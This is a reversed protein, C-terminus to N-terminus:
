TLIGRSRKVTALNMCKADRMRKNTFYTRIQRPQLGTLEALKSVENSGAYPNNSHTQLYRNLITRQKETFNQRQKTSKNKMQYPKTSAVIQSAIEHPLPQFQFNKDPNEEPNQPHIMIEPIKLHNDSDFNELNTLNETNENNESTENNKQPEQTQTKETPEIDNTKISNKSNEKKINVTQDAEISSHSSIEVNEQGTLNCNTNQNNQMHFNRNQFFNFQLQINPFNPHRLFNRNDPVFVNNIKPQPFKTPNDNNVPLFCPHYNAIAYKDPIINSLNVFTTDDKINSFVSKFYRNRKIPARQNDKSDSKFDTISVNKNAKLGDLVSAFTGHRSENIQKLRFKLKLPCDKYIYDELNTASQNFQQHGDSPDPINLNRSLFCSDLSDDGDAMTFSPNISSDMMEFIVDFQFFFSM